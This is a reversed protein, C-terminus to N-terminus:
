IYDKKQGLPPLAPNAAGFTIYVKQKWHSFSKTAIKRLFHQGMTLLEIRGEASYHLTDGISMM